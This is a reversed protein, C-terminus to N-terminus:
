RAAAPATPAIMAERAGAQTACPMATGRLSAALRAAECANAAINADHLSAPDMEQGASRWVHWAFPASLVWNLPVPTQGKAGLYFHFFSQGAPSACYGAAARRLLAQVHASRAEYVGALPAIIEALLRARRMAPAAETGGCRLMTEMAPAAAEMGMGEGLGAGAGAGSAAVLIPATGQARLWDTLELATELGSDDYYGGDIAVLSRPARDPGIEASPAIYPFRATVDAATSAPMDAGLVGLLDIAGRLPWRRAQPEPQLPSIIARAGSDRDTANAFWVPLDPRAALRLSPTQLDWAPLAAARAALRLNREFAREIAAARDGGRLNGGLVAAAGGLLSRPLDSLVFGALLPGIADAALGTRAYDGFAAHRSPDLRCDGPPAAARVALYAASGLSGGSVSSIAFIAARGGGAGDGAASVADLQAMVSAAWLASRAAGGSVAVVIPRTQRGCAAQWAALRAGLTQRPPLPGPAVRVAHLPVLLPTIATALLLLTMVPPRALGFPAGRFSFRLRLGDCVFAIATMPGVSLAAGLLAPTPGSFLTWIRNRPDESDAAPFFSVIATLIFVGMSLGLLASAAFSGSPARRLLVRLRHPARALFSPLHGTPALRPDEPPLRERGLRRAPWLIRWLLRHLERRRIVLAWVVLVLSLVAAGTGPADSGIAIGLGLLGSLPIPAQPVLILAAARIDAREGREAARIIARWAIDTDPLDFRASIAARAWYWCLFGLSAIAAAFVLLAAPGSDGLAALMDRMQPPLLLALAALALIAYPARATRLLSGFSIVPRSPGPHPPSGAPPGGTWGHHATM